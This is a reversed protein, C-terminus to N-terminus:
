AYPLGSRGMETQGKVHHHHHQPLKGAASGRYQPSLVEAKMGLSATRIEEKKKERNKVWACSIMELPIVRKSVHNM